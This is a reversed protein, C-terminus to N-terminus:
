GNRYEDHELVQLSRWGWYVRHHQILGDRLEMVEVLDLQEGDPAERPYEWTVVAGDTFLGSRFRRRLPPTRQFVKEIFPRLEEHGSVVGREKSLLHRVLPSEIMADPAYLRLAAELDKKGLADDWQQYIREAARMRADDVRNPEGADATSMLAGGLAAGMARAGWVLVERRSSAQSMGAELTIKSLSERPSLPDLRL